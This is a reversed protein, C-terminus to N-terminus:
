LKVYKKMKENSIRFNVYYLKHSIMKILSYIEIDYEILALGNSVSYSKKRSKEHEVNVLQDIRWM